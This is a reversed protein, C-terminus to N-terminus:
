CIKPELVFLVRLDVGSYLLLVGSSPEGCLFFTLFPVGGPPPLPPPEKKIFKSLWFPSPNLVRDKPDAAGAGGEHDDSEDDSEDDDDDSLPPPMPPMEPIDDFVDGGAAAARKGHGRRFSAKGAKKVKKTSKKANSKPNAESLFM